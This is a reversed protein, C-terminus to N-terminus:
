LSCLYCREQMFSEPSRKFCWLPNPIYPDVPVRLYGCIVHAPLDPTGLTLILTSTNKLEEDRRVKIRRVFTVGQDSLESLIEAEEKHLLQFERIVGKVTNLSGHPSVKVAINIMKNMRLLNDSHSKKTVHVLLEGSRLKKVEKPQGAVAQVQKNIAFPSLRSLSQNDDTAKILLFRPWMDLVQESDSESSPQWNRKIKKTNKPNKEVSLNTNENDM